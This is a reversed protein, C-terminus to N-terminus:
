ASRKILSSSRWHNVFSQFEHGPLPPSFLYGQGITCARRRLFDFQDVTEVGEAVTEQDLTEAMALIMEIIAPAHPDTALAKVFQQDIKFVDFPMRTVTTFNSHGTGFDDIALRVGKARLPRMTRVVKEPNEVAASETVELELCEPSIGSEDLIEYVAPIFNPDEFQYPSVNVAVRVPRSGFNWKAASMCADRLVSTGLKAILGMEEAKPIFVGPSVVEGDPRRWRALAEAGIVEGTELEVKPQYVAVFEGREVGGRIEDELRMQDHADEALSKNYFFLTNIRDEKSRKMALEAQKLLEVSTDADRPSCSASADIKLELRRGEIELPRKVDAVISKTMREITVDDSFPVSIAFQDAGLRGVFSPAQQYVDKRMLKDVQKLSAHIRQAIEKLVLDAARPGVTANVKHFRNIDLLLLANSKEGAHKIRHDMVHMFHPRNALGTVTDTMALKRYKKSQDSYQQVAQKVANSWDEDLNDMVGFVSKYGEAGEEEVAKAAQKFPRLIYRAMAFAIPTLALLILISIFMGEGLAEAGLHANHPEPSRLIVAGLTQGELRVPSISITAGKYSQVNSSSKLFDTLGQDNLLSLASGRSVRPQGNPGLIAVADLSTDKFFASAMRDLEALDDRKMADAALYALIESELRLTNYEAEIELNNAAFTQEVKSAALTIIAFAIAMCGIKVPLSVLGIKEAIGTFM